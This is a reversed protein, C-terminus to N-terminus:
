AEGAVLQQFSRELEANLRALNFEQEVRARGAQGMTRQCGPDAILTALHEALTEVDREDALLGCKDHEVLEPIAGHRSTVVPLGTALAEMLVVPIGEEDGNAATVSPALFIDTERLLEAVRDQTQGGLLQVRDRVDLESVLANLEARLPGDGVVRYDCAVGRRKLEAVARLAFEIGKKEVLRGVSLIRAPGDDTREPREAFRTCDVGMRHVRVKAPPCGLGIMRERAYHSIALFLDGTAFLQDYVHPGWKRLYTTLGYDHFTTVVKGAHLGAERLAAAHIGNPAFHAHAVDYDGGSGVL